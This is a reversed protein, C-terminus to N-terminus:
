SPKGCSTARLHSSFSMGASGPSCTPRVAPASHSPPCPRGRAPSLACPPPLASPVRHPCPQPCMPPCPRPHVPPLASPVCPAPSLAWPPPCSRLYMPPLASPVHPPLADVRGESGAGRCGSPTLLLWTGREQERYEPHGLLGEGAVPMKRGQAEEPGGPERPDQPGWDQGPWPGETEDKIGGQWAPSYSWFAPALLRRRM